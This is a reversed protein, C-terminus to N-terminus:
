DGWPAPHFSRRSSSSKQTRHTWESPLWPDMNRRELEQGHHEVGEIVDFLVLELRQQQVLSGGDLMCVAQEDALPYPLLASDCLPVENGRGVLLMGKPKALAPSGTAAMSGM